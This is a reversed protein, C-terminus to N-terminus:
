RVHQMGAEGVRTNLPAPTVREPAFNVLRHQGPIDGARGGHRQEIRVLTLKVDGCFASQYLLLMQVPHYGLGIHQQHQEIHRAHQHREPAHLVTRGVLYQGDAYAQDPHEVVHNNKTTRHRNRNFCPLDALRVAYLDGHRSGDCAFIAMHQGTRQTVVRIAADPQLQAFRVGQPLIFFHPQQQPTSLLLEAEGTLHLTDKAMPSADTEMLQGGLLM